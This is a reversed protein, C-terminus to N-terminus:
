RDFGDECSDDVSPTVGRCRDLGARCLRADVLVDGRDNPLPPPQGDPRHSGGPVSSSGVHLQSVAIVPWMSSERALQKLGRSGPSLGDRPQRNSGRGMLQLYAAVILDLMGSRV